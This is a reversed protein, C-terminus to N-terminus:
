AYYLEAAQARPDAIARCTHSRESPIRASAPIRTASRMYDRCVCVCVRVCVCMCLYVHVCVCVCVCVCPALRTASRM